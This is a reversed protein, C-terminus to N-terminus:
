AFGVIGPLHPPYFVDFAPNIDDMGQHLGALFEHVADRAASALDALENPQVLLPHDYLAKTALPQQAMSMVSASSDATRGVIVTTASGGSMYRVWVSSTGNVTGVTSWHDGGGDLDVQILGGTTVRLYGASAINVGAAVQLFSSVDVVDGSAYDMIKDANAPNALADSGLVFRDNGKGGFYTDAGGKGDLINGSINGIITQAFENGTLNISAKGKDNTTRLVEIESGAALAYSVSALVTDQGVGGAGELVLTVANNVTYSNGAQMAAGSVTATMAYNGTLSGAASMSLTYNGAATDTFSLTSDLGIGSDDDSAVLAGNSGLLKLV